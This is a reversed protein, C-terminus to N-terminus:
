FGDVQKYAEIVAIEGEKGKQSNGHEMGLIGQFGKQHIHRFINKYNIEGTTPENRGPNDGIQFYAVEDWAKDINPILNGETIQQHYMDFLIKCSPSGVAKCIEYAQPIKSLFQGAHDRWWNLPELVMVLGHPELIDCARKLSEVVHATQYGMELKLDVHGPVVTIWKANVRKAVEVSERIGQLFEDRKAQDGNTLNPESWYIKHAVFVGMQMGLKSMKSAIKEQDEKSRGKMGNDELARFGQDYMFQLEAELDTGVHNKFMGFHPAYKLKFAPKPYQSHSNKGISEASVIGLGSSLILSGTALSNKIFKRRSM